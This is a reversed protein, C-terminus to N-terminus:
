GPSERKRQLCTVNILLRCVKRDDFYYDVSAGRKRAKQPHNSEKVDLHMASPVKSSRYNGQTAIDVSFTKKGGFGSIQEDEENKEV